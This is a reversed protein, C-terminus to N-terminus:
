GPGHRHVRRINRRSGRGSASRQDGGSLQDPRHTARDPLGVLALMEEVKAETDANRAGELLLPLAVNEAASLTPLLNFFQFVFGVQRRRLLTLENDDMQALAQGALSVEGGSNEDLGGLIHLLSSKGSGSPGMIAVFEGPEVVFDVGRLAEVDVEGMNYSKRLSTAQVIPEM